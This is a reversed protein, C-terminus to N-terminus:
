RILRGMIQHIWHAAALTRADDGTRGVIQLGVPLGNPGRAVPVTVTPTHLFTWTQNMVPDGTTEFGKPAEGRASPVLLVDCDGFAQPLAVRCQMGLAQAKQYTEGTVRSGEEWRERLSPSLKGARLHEDAFSRRMEFLFVIWQADLLGSFLPPLTVDTVRAGASALEKRAREMAAATEPQVRDWQFTRCLGVKLGPGAEPLHVLRADNSEVGAYVAVDPVTRAFLGVTDLSDGEVKVGARSLLNFTPKYGVIGCFSAPRITSGVTQTGTALHVMCDAVAAASGASSGGPTHALNHPNRTRSPVHTALETTVTKGLIVMGAHRATAITAADAGPRHGAYIPTGHETPMDHTEFVDKVGLPIGHLPGRSPGRDLARAQALALEPDIYQWARVEADRQAIRDLCDRILQEATIERSAIRRAAEVASLTNLKSM